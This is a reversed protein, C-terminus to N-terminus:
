ILDCLQYNHIWNQLLKMVIMVIFPWLYPVILNSKALAELQQVGDSAWFKVVWLTHSMLSHNAQKLTQNVHM